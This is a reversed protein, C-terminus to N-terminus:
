LSIRSPEADANRRKDGLCDVAFQLSEDSLRGGILLERFKAKVNDVTFDDDNRLLSAMRERFGVEDVGCLTDLEQVLKKCRVRKVKQPRVVKDQAVEEDLHCFTCKWGNVCPKKLKVFACTTCLGLDHIRRHMEEWYIDDQTRSPETANHRTSREDKSSISELAVSSSSSLSSDIMQHAHTHQTPKERKGWVIHQADSM